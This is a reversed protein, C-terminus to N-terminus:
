LESSVYMGVGTLASNLNNSSFFMYGMGTPLTAPAVLDFLITQSNVVSGGYQTISTPGTNIGTGVYGNSGSAFTSAMTQWYWTTGSILGISITGRKPVLMNVVAKAASSTANYTTIGGAINEYYRQCLQLETGYLRREFPTAVTGIELQVGTINFTSGNTNVMNVAGTAGNYNGTAWAGPTTSGATSIGLGWQILVGIGNNTTWAGSTEPPIVLSIFTWTNASAINYLAPYARTNASNQLCIGFNGTLSSYVWFSLTAYKGAATGWAFDAINYGEISQSIRYLDSGVTTAALSTVGLYNTFGSPPTVSGANQQVTFKSAQSSYAQWRDLTYTGAGATVSAGANRQDIRMDGNIIRNRPGLSQATAFQTTDGFTVTSAVSINSVSLNSSTALTAVSVSNNGANITMAVNGTGLGTSFTMNGSNDPTIVLGTGPVAQLNVAM